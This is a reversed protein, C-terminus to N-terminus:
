TEPLEAVLRNQSDHIRVFAPAKIADTLIVVCTGPGKTSAFRLAQIRRDKAVARGLVHTPPTRRDRRHRWPERLEAPTTGLAALVRTDTLDLVAALRVHVAFTVIAESGAVPRLPGPAGVQLYERLSTEYDDALYLAPAGGRPTFRAGGAGPGLNYLPRPKFPKKNQFGYLTAPSIARCLAGDYTTLSLRKLATAIHRASFM